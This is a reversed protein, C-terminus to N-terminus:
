MNSKVIYCVILAVFWSAISIGFQKVQFMDSNSEVQTHGGNLLGSISVIGIALTTTMEISTFTPVIIWNWCKMFIWGKLMVLLVSIGLGIIGVM